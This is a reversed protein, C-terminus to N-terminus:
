DSPEGAAEKPGAGSATGAAAAAADPETEEDDTLLKIALDREPGSLGAADIAQLLRTKEERDFSMTLEGVTFEVEDFRLKPHDHRLRLWLVARKCKVRGKLLREDFEDLSYGTADELLEAELSSLQDPHFDWVIETGGTPAYKIIM